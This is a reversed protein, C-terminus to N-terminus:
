HFNMGNKVNINYREILLKGYRIDFTSIFDEFVNDCMSLLREGIKYSITENIYLDPREFNPFLVVFIKTSNRSIEVLYVFKSNKGIEHFNRYLVKRNPDIDPDKIDM